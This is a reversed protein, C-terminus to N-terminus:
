GWKCARRRRYRPWPLHPTWSLYWEGENARILERPNSKGQTPIRSQTQLSLVTLTDPAGLLVPCDGMASVGWSKERDEAFLDPSQLCEPRINLASTPLTDNPPPARGMRSPVPPIPLFSFPKLVTLAAHLM